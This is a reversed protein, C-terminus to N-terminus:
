RARRMTLRMTSPRRTTQSPRSLDPSDGVLAAACLIRMACPVKGGFSGITADAGMIMFAEIARQREALRIPHMLSSWRTRFLWGLATVGKDDRHNVCGPTALRLAEGIKRQQMLEVLKEGRAKEENCRAKEEKYRVLGLPHAMQRNPNNISNSWRVLLVDHIMARGTIVSQTASASPFGGFGLSLRCECQRHHHVVCVDFCDSRDGAERSRSACRGSGM